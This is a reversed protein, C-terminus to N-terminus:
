SVAIGSGLLLTKGSQLTAVPGNSTIKVSSVIGSVSGDASTVTRGVVAGAISLSSSTLLSDLKTNAAMSQEVQSFTALQAVFQTSDTPQTPDQYKLQAILLKLFSNYDLGTKVAASTAAATSSDSSAGSVPNIATV